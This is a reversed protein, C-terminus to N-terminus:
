AVARPGGDAAADAALQRRLDAALAAAERAARIAARWLQDSPVAEALPGAPGDDDDVVRLHADGLRARAGSPAVVSVPPRAAGRDVSPGGLPAGDSVQQEQQM